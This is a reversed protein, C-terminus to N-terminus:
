ANIQLTLMRQKTSISSKLKEFDIQLSELTSYKLSLLDKIQSKIDIVDEHRKEETSFIKYYVCMEVERLEAAKEKLQRDIKSIKKILNAM